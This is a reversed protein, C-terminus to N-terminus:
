PQECDEGPPKVFFLNIRVEGPEFPYTWLYAGTRNDRVGGRDDDTFYHDALTAFLTANVEQSLSVHAGQKDRSYTEVLAIRFGDRQREQLFALARRSSNSPTWAIGEESKELGERVSGRLILAGTVSGRTVDRLVIQDFLFDVEYLCARTRKHAEREEDLEGQTEAAAARAEDLAGQTEGAVARAEDLVDQTREHAARAEDLQGQTEAAAARAEDLADQTEAHAARAEDLADQTEAHAARAQDLADQTEAHAAREKDLNDQAAAYDDADGRGVVVFVLALVLMLDAFLWGAIGIGEDDM